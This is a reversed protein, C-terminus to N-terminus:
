GAGTKFFKMTQKARAVNQYLKVRAQLSQLNMIQILRYFDNINYKISVIIIISIKQFKYIFIAKM